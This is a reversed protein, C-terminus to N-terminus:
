PRRLPEDNLELLEPPLEVVQRAADLEADTAPPALVAYTAPAHQSLWRDLENWSATISV